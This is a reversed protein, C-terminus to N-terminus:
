APRVSGDDTLFGWRTGEAAKPLLRLGVTGDERIQVSTEDEWWLTGTHRKGDLEAVWVKVGLWRRKGHIVFADEERKISVHRTTGQSHCFTVKRPPICTPM